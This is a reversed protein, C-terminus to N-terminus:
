NNENKMNNSKRRRRERVKRSKTLLKILAYNVYFLSNVNFKM